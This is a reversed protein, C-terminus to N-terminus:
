YVDRGDGPKRRKRYRLYWAALGSILLTVAWFFLHDWIYQRFDYWGLFGTQNLSLSKWFHISTMVETGLACLMALILPMVFASVRRLGLWGIVWLAAFGLAFGLWYRLRLMEFYWFHLPEGRWDTPTGRWVAFSAVLEAAIIFFLAPPGYTTKPLRDTRKGNSQM